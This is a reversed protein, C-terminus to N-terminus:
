VDIDELFMLGTGERCGIYEADLDGPKLVCIEVFLVAKGLESMKGGPGYIEMTNKRLQVHGRHSRGAQEFHALDLFYVLQNTEAIAETDIELDVSPDFNKAHSSTRMTPKEHGLHTTFSVVGSTERETDLHEMWSRAHPAISEMWTDREDQSINPQRQGERAFLLNEPVKSLRIRGSRIATSTPKPIAIIKKEPDPKSKAKTVYPSVFKDEPDTFRDPNAALRRRYVGWYGEDHSQKLDLLHGMASKVPQSSAHMFRSKPVTMVERWVGADDPLDNWFKRVSESDMWSKYDESRLWYSVFTTSHPGDRPLGHSEDQLHDLRDASQRLLSYLTAITTKKEETLVQHQIGFVGIAFVREGGELNALFVM